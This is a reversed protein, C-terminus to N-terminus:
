RTASVENSVGSEAGGTDYATVAFYYVDGPALGTVTFSTVNGVNINLLTYVGSATGVHVKYGALDSETNANWALNVLALLNTVTVTRTATASNGAADWAVATLTHVGNVATTTDWAVTYPSATDEPAILVGDRKFEVGAVGVNDTATASFTTTGSVTAGAAPATISVVPPTVDVTLTIFTFDSSLALTGAADRSRVRFHYTSGGTLAGLLITHTTVFSGNLPSTSGYATTLGYDVQSDSATNTTWTITAGSATISGAAVGSIVPPVAVNNVTVTVGASTTTNGAADRAVATLTHSGNAVPPMVSTTAPGSTIDNAVTLGDDSNTATVDLPSATAIGSYEHIELRQVTPSAGGYTTTVTTPGTAVNAAYLIALSQGNTADFASTAVSYANGRSDTASVASNGQWAVAIVLLNGATVNSGFALVTASNATNSTATAGQVYAPTGTSKFAAM